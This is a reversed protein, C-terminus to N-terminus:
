EGRDIRNRGAQKARYLHKDALAVLEEPQEFKQKALTAVGGSVTLKISQAIGEKDTFSFESQEVRRRIREAYLGAGEENIERLLVAFEEGGFRCFVDEYRSAKSIIKAVQRLVADGALHGWRDNIEKFYDIDFMCLSLTVHHRTCFAFEAVLRELLFKKNFLGTLGDRTASEYLQRQFEEEIKDQYTLKLITNSGVQFRDGDHLEIAQVKEGDFYTGNKSGLDIVRIQDMSRKEIKAHHRSIGVDQICIDADEARGLVIEPASLKFMRGIATGSIVLLCASGKENVHTRNPVVGTVTDDPTKTM